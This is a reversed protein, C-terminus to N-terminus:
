SSPIKTFFSFFFFFINFFITQLYCIIIKRFSCLLPKEFHIAWKIRRDNFDLKSMVLNFFQWSVCNYSKTIDIKLAVGLNTLGKIRWIFSLRLLLSPLTLYGDVKLFLENSRLVNCKPLVIKLCNALVNSLIKFSMNYLSM